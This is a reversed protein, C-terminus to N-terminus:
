DLGMVTVLEIGGRASREGKPKRDRTRAALFELIDSDAGAAAAGGTALTLDAKGHNAGAIEDALVAHEKGPGALLELERM